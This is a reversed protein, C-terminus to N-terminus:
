KGVNEAALLYTQFIVRSAERLSEKETDALSEYLSSGLSRGVQTPVGVFVSEGLLNMPAAVSLTENTDKVIARTIDRFSAAPGYETAGISDVISKSVTKVYSEIQRKECRAGVSESYEEVSLGEVKATSWLAVAADGHEGGVWGTVKSPPVQFAESLASRFRLSELNTGSSIVFKAKTYKKCVMAMADVPNTIVIYRANPNKDCTAESIHKVIRGNQVSLDRRSMRAGPVRPEGASILIIDAGKVHDERECSCIEVKNRTSAKVHKLEEAFAKAVGPKTDCLTLRDPLMADM